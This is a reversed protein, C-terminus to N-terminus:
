QFLKKKKGRSGKPPPAQVRKWNAGLVFEDMSHNDPKELRSLLGRDAKFPSVCIVKFQCDKQHQVELAYKTPLPLRGTFEHYATNSVGRVFELDLTAVLSHMLSDIQLIYHSHNDNKGILLTFEEPFRIAISM